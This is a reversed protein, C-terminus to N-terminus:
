LTKLSRNHNTNRFLERQSGHLCHILLSLSFIHFAPSLQHVFHHCHLPCSASPFPIVLVKHIFLHLASLTLFFSDHGPPNGFQAVFFGPLRHQQEYLVSSSSSTQTILSMLETNSDLSGDFLSNSHRRTFTSVLIPYVM